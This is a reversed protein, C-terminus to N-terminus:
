RRTATSQVDDLDAAYAVGIQRRIEDMTEMIEVSVRLPMWDSELHGARIEQMAHGVEHALGDHPADVRTPTSGDFLTMPNNGHNRITFSHSAWFPPDIAITGETGIIEATLTGLAELGTHIVGLAGSDYKLLIGLNTDVGRSDIQGAARIEAPVGLILQCLAVAYVGMDLLAGGGLNPDRLRGTEGVGRAFNAQVVRVDGIEGDEIRRRIQTIPPLFWMWMAEMLFRGNRRSAEVMGRAQQANLAFAKECLVHKGANLAAVTMEFHASHPSAIYV